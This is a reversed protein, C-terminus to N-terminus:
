LKDALDIAFKDTMGAVYDQVITHRPEDKLRKQFKKSLHKEDKMVGSFLKKVIDQGKKSNEVIEKNLYFNNMLFEQLEQIEPTLTNSFGIKKERDFEELIDKVMVKILYGIAQQRMIEKDESEQMNKEIRKWIALKECSQIPFINGRIGDDIDHANYAISDSINVVEAELSCEGEEGHDYPTSHKILGDLVEHTLNLGPFNPYKKEIVEVVKRSQRNHEFRLEYEKMCEDLAEEGAHGFPTHGLDHALAIAETLDENLSLNRAIDRAIQSVELTHTLRSRYHDGHYARFVQTKGHLRRFARAHIIRDRDRQFPLRLPDEPEDYKRGKTDANKTAYPALFKDQEKQLKDGKLIM